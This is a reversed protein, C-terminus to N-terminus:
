KEREHMRRAFNFASYKWRFGDNQMGLDNPHVHLVDEDQAQEAYPVLPGDLYEVGVIVDACKIYRFDQRWLIKDKHKGLCEDCVTIELMQGDQPDFFTSGYHGHTSFATGDLPQNRETSGVPESNELQKGCVICPLSYQRM